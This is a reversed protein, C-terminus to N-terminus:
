TQLNMHLHIHFGTKIGWLLFILFWWGYFSCQYLRGHINFVWTTSMLNLQSTPQHRGQKRQTEMQRDRERERVRQMAGGCNVGYCSCMQFDKHLPFPLQLCCEVKQTAQDWQSVRGVEKVQRHQERVRMREERQILIGQVNGLRSSLSMMEKRTLLLLHGKEVLFLITQALGNKGGTTTLWLILM